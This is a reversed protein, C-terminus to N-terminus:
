FQTSTLLAINDQSWPGYRPTTAGQDLSKRAAAIYQTLRTNADSTDLKIEREPNGNKRISKMTNM